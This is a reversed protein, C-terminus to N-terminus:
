IPKQESKVVPDGKVAPDTFPSTPSTTTPKPNSFSQFQTMHDIQYKQLGNDIRLAQIQDMYQAVEKGHQDQIQKITAQHQLIEDMTASKILDMKASFSENLFNTTAPISIVIVAIVFVSYDVTGSLLSKLFLGLASLLPILWSKVFTTWWREQFEKSFLKDVIYNVPKTTPTTAKSETQTEVMNLEEVTNIAVQVKNVRDIKHQIQSLNWDHKYNKLNTVYVGWLNM